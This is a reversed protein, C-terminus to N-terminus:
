EKNAFKAQSRLVLPLWGEETTAWKTDVLSDPPFWECIILAAFLDEPIDTGPFSNAPVYM